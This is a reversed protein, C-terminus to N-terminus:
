LKRIQQPGYERMCQMKFPLTVCSPLSCLCSLSPWHKTPFLVKRTYPLTQKAPSAFNKVACPMLHFDLSVGSAPGQQSRPSAPM